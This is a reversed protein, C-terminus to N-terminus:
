HVREMNRHNFKEADRNGIRPVPVAKKQPQLLSGDQELLLSDAFRIKLKSFFTQVSVLLSFLVAWTSGKVIKMEAM